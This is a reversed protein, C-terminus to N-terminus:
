GGAADGLGHLQEFAERTVHMRLEQHYGLRPSYRRRNETTEFGVRLYSRQARVNSEYTHLYLLDFDLDVFLHRLFAIMADTGYGRGWYAKEGIYIGLEGTRGRRDINYCSVMGILTDDRTAIAYSIRKGDSPWDRQALTEVFQGFSRGGPITGSWYQLVDDRSWAYRRRLEEETFGMTAPRLRTKSGQVIRYEAIM